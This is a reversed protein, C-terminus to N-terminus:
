GRNCVITTEHLPKSLQLVTYQSPHSCDIIRCKYHCCTCREKGMEEHGEHGQVSGVNCKELPYHIIYNRCRTTYLTIIRYHM